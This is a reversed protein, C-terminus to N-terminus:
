KIVCMSLKKKHEAAEDLNQRKLELSRKESERLDVDNALLLYHGLASPYLEGTQCTKITAELEVVQDCKEKYSAL